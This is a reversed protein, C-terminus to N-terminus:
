TAAERVTYSVSILTVFYAV